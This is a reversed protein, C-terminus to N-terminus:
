VSHALGKAPTCLHLASVNWSCPEECWHLVQGPGGWMVLHPTSCFHLDRDLLLNRRGSGFGKIQRFRGTPVSLFTVPYIHPILLTVMNGLPFVLCWMPSGWAVQRLGAEGVHLARTWAWGAGWTPSADNRVKGGVRSANSSAWIRGAGAGAGAWSADSSACVGNGRGGLPPM